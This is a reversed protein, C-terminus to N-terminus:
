IEMWTVDGCIKEGLKRSEFSKIQEREKKLETSEGHGPLIETEDPLVLVKNKISQLIQRFDDPTSTKGPGGPFITDGAILYNGVKFCLGGITHGPTHLVEIKYDCFEISYGDKLLKDPKVPLTGADGEHAALPAGLAEYIENLAMVHDGHGHTILIYKVDTGALKEIITGANGPADVLISENNDTCILVYANTGFPETELRYIELTGTKGVLEFTKSM